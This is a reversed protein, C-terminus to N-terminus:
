ITVHTHSSAASAATANTIGHHVSLVKLPSVDSSNCCLTGTLTSTSFTGIHHVKGDIIQMKENPYVLNFVKECDVKRMDLGHLECYDKMKDNSTIMAYNFDGLLKEYAEEIIEKDVDTEELIKDSCLHYEGLDARMKMQKIRVTESESIYLEYPYSFFSHEEYNKNYNVEGKFSCIEKWERIKAEKIMEPKKEFVSIDEGNHNITKMNTVLKYYNDVVRGLVVNKM